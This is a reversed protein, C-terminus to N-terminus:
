LGFGALSGPRIPPGLGRPPLALAAAAQSPGQGHPTSAPLDVHSAGPPPRTTTDAAPAPPPASARGPATAPAGPRAARPRPFPVLIATSRVRIRMTIPPLATSAM